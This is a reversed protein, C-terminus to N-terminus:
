QGGPVEYAHDQMDMPKDCIAVAGVLLPRRHLEDDDLAVIFRPRPM